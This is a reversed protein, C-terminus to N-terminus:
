LQDAIGFDGKPLLASGALFCISLIISVFRNMREFTLM